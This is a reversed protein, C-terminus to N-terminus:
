GALFLFTEASVPNFKTQGGLAAHAAAATNFGQLIWYGIAPRAGHDAWWKADRPVSDMAEIYAARFKSTGALEFLRTLKRALVLYGGDRLIAPIVVIADMDYAPSGDPTNIELKM